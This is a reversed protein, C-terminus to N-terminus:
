FIEVKPPKTVDDEHTKVAFSSNASTSTHSSSITWLEQSDNDVLKLDVDVDTNAIAETLKKKMATIMRDTSDNDKEVKKKDFSLVFQFKYSQPQDPKMKSHFTSFQQSITRSLEARRGARRSSAVSKTDDDGNTMKDLEVSSIEPEAIYLKRNYVRQYRDVFVSILMGMTAPGCLACLCSIIRGAATIPCM